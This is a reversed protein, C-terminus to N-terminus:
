KAAAASKRRMILAVALGIVVVVLVIVVIVTPNSTAAPPPAYQAVGDNLKPAPVPNSVPKVVNRLYYIIATTDQDTLTTWLYWPMVIVRRYNQSSPLVGEHLVRKIDDDSWNGIGTAKDPTINGGYIIGWPGEYPQGGALYKEMIPQGTNPDVPTHCDTCPIIARLLYTGRAAADSPDPAVIGTRLPINPLAEAPINLQREPVKNSIAPLTRLYAVIADVDADAMNNFIIYPMVPFLHTGDKEVGTRIAIKIQDDTWNGLGTEKDSTLNKTFLKGTPGLDFLYGGSFAKTLDSKGDPGLPTHCDICGAITTLYKGRAVPDSGQRVPQAGALPALVALVVVVAVVLLLRYTLHKM